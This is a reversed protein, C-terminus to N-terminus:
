RESMTIFITGSPRHLLAYSWMMAPNNEKYLEIDWAKFNPHAELFRELCRDSFDVESFSTLLWGKPLLGNLKGELEWNSEQLPGGWSFDYTDIDVNRLLRYPLSFEWLYGLPLSCLLLGIYGLPLCMLIRFRKKM